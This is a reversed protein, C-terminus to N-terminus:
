PEHISDVEYLHPEHTAYREAEAFHEWIEPRILMAEFAERTEWQAYNIVRTGDLSRHLNASVFGPVGRVKESAGKLIDLLARQNEPAVTFVNILTIPSAGPKITTM